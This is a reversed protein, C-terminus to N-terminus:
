SASHALLVTRAAPHGLRRMIELMEAYDSADILAPDLDADHVVWFVRGKIGTLEIDLGFLEPPVASGAVWQGTTVAVTGSNLPAVWLFEAPQLEVNGFKEPLAVITVIRTRIHKDRYHPSERTDGRLRMLKDLTEPLRFYLFDGDRVGFQTVRASFEVTGPHTDFDTILDGEAMAGEAVSTLLEQHHRAREEPPMEAYKKHAAAYQSGYVRQIKRITADGSESLRIMSFLDKRAEKGARSLIRTLEGEKPVLGVREEHPTAGLVAYQDTDNFYMYEGNEQVRVLVEDFWRPDPHQGVAEQLSRVRSVKSGALVFEPKFGAKALMAYLLTARDASNGYGEQLTLDAKSLRSFPIEDLRPGAQRINRAVFDRIATLKSEPTKLGRMLDKARQGANNQGSANSRLVDRVQDGYADWGGAYATVTPTFADLPPVSDERKIVRAERITWRCISRNGEVLREEQVVPGPIGIGEEYSFGNADLDAVIELESPYRVVVELKGVPDMRWLGTRAAFFPHDSYRRLYKYEITSGIEVGPLSSVLVKSAPYRPASGVWPADMVNQEEPRIEQVSGDPAIVRAYEFTVEEWVPNYHIKLESNRKKGAYSLIKKKTTVTETWNHADELDYEIQQELILTEIDGENQSTAILASTEDEERAFIPMKYRSRDREKLAQKLTLYEEPSFEVAKLLFETAGTLVSGDASLEDRQTWSIAENDICPYSPMSLVEGLLPPLDLRITEEVGCAITTKLPYEREELGTRGRLVFSTWGVRTGLRPVPLMVSHDGSVFVDEAEFSTTVHLPTSTDLMDEPLISLDTIRAGSIVNKLAGEFYERRQEPAIRAFYGRYGNDNIGEFELSSEATLKGAADISGTTTIRMLNEEAPVIPSTRLTDGEPKAVMYSKDNLYAPLIEKTSEDTPDMLVYSGNENEVCAIAHNFWPLPVEIDKKTPGQMILIPWAKCGDLRLMAVLLAAKDRCVGHRQTFTEAVDHPEYGPAEAETTIGLYRVEQSVWRFLAEIRARRDSLGETLEAVKQKMAPTTDYHPESLQWYWRSITEWDPATSVLLRQVVETLGPMSPEAFMRPVDRVEWRYVIDDDGETKTHKVTGPIEDKLVISRLPKDRPGIVEYIMHKLPSSYEFVNLDAWVDRVRPQRVKRYTVYHVMDGIELGPITAQLIKSNPNYINSGMSSPDIMVRSLEEVDVPVVTGDPKILELIRIAIDKEEDDYRSYPITFHISLTQHQRKGKETLVKLYTDDWVVYTGDAHYRVRIHDDVLVDDANPFREQTVDRAAEIVAIRELLGRSYDEGSSSDQAVSTAVLCFFVLAVVSLRSLRTFSKRM